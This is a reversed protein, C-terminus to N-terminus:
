PPTSNPAHIVASTLLACNDLHHLMEVRGVSGGGDGGGGGGGALCVGDGGHGGGGGCYVVLGLM